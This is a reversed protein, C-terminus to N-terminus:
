RAPREAAVAHRLRDAAFEQRPHNVERLLIERGELARQLDEDRERKHTIDQATGILRLPRGADDYIMRGHSAVWRIAGSPRVIRHELLQAGGSHPDLTHALRGIVRERDDPHVSDRWYDFTVEREPELGWIAKQTDSWITEGTEVNWEWIGLGTAEVALELRTRDFSVEEARRREAEARKEADMRAKVRHTVDVAFTLIGNASGRENLLPFFTVDWYMSPTGSLPPIPEEPVSQSRGEAFVRDRLAYTREPLSDGLVDRLERGAPDAGRQILANRYLANAYVFRHRSGFTVSIAVPISEFLQFIAASRFRLGEESLDVGALAQGPASRATEGPLEDWTM